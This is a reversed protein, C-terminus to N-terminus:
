SSFLAWFFMYLKEAMVWFVLAKIIKCSVIALKLTIHVYYQYWFKIFITSLGRSAARGHNARDTRRLSTCLSHACECDHRYHEFSYLLVLRFISIYISSLPFITNICLFCHFKIWDCLFTFAHCKSSFNISGSIWRHYTPYVFLWQKNEKM